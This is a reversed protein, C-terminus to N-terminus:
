SPTFNHPRAWKRHVWTKGGETIKMCLSNEGQDQGTEDESAEICLLKPIVCM